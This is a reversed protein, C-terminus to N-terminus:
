LLGLVYFTYGLLGVQIVSAVQPFFVARGYWRGLWESEKRAAPLATLIFISAATQLLVMLATAIAYIAVVDDM